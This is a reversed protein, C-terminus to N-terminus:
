EQTKETFIGPQGNQHVLFSDKLRAIYAFPEEPSIPVFVSAFENQRSVLSFCWEGTGFQRVPLRTTIEFCDGTPVPIGLSHQQDGCILLLRCIERGEPKCRCHFLFYLGQRTVSVKGCSKGKQTVTYFTKM